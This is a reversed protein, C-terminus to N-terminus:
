KIQEYKTKEKKSEEDMLYYNDPNERGQTKIVKQRDKKLEDDILQPGSSEDAAKRMDIAPEEAKKFTASGFRYIITVRHTKDLDATSVFGYDFSVKRERFGLGLSFGEDSHMQLGGRLFFARAEERGYSYELGLRYFADEGRSQEGQGALLASGMRGDWLRASFGLAETRPLENQVEKYKLKTGVNQLSAGLVVRDGRFPFAMVGLNLGFGTATYQEVLKSRIARATGGVALYPFPRLSLSVSGEHAEEAKYTQSAGASTLVDIRGATYYNLAFGLASHFERLRLPHSYYLVTHHSSNQLSAYSFNIERFASRVVGAPNTLIAASGEAAAVDAGAVGVLRADMNEQLFGAASTGTGALLRPIPSLPYPIPSVLILLFLFREGYGMGWVGYGKLNGNM